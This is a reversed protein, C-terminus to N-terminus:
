KKFDLTKKAQLYWYYLFKKFKSWRTPIQADSGFRKNKMFSNLAKSKGRMEVYDTLVASM